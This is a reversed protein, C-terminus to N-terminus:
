GALCSKRRRHNELRGIGGCRSGCSPFVHSRPCLKRDAKEVDGSTRRGAFWKGTRGIGCLVEDLILFIGHRKCIDAVISYYEHPPVVAGLTAGCVTEALFASITTPGELKIFEELAQACRLECSPYTLGYYCRLCYPPPIHIVPMLMPTFPDRMSPKGTASLAGLTAGHYSQWRSILRHRGPEGAAVHIQRALKMSTEVAECGSSCFYFRNIGEPAHFALRAALEETPGTTFKPGHVYAVKSAQNAIADVVARRGHGVSVCTAGGAADLYKKGDTDYIWVGEASVAEPLPRDLRRHFVHSEKV